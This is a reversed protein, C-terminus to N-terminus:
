VRVRRTFYNNDQISGYKECVRLPYKLKAEIIGVKKFSKGGYFEDLM